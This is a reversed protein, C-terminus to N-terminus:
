ELWFDVTIVVRIEKEKEYEENIFNSKNRSNITIAGQNAYKISGIKTKSNNAFEKATNRANITAEKLLENKIDNIKTYKYVPKMEGYNNKIYVNNEILSDLNQAAKSVNEIDNTILNISQTLIYRNKQNPDKYEKSDLDLLELQNISINKDKFSSKQLFSVVFELDKKNKERLTQLNNGSNVFSITWYATDALVNKEASGKVTVYGGTQKIQKTVIKVIAFFIFLCASALLFIHIKKM